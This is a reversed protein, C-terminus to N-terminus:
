STKFGLVLYANKLDEPLLSKFNAADAKKIKVQWDGLLQAQQAFDSKAMHQRGGYTPNPSTAEISATGGPPTLEVSFSVGATGDVILDVKTLNINTKGRVYFPLHDRELTFLLKQDQGDEPYLFRHWEGSFEQNLVFMRLGLPPLVAALNNKAAQTLNNGESPRATYRVHLIVDSVTALDFQNNERPLEVRWESVAGAGEFPLFREDNFNLEFMGSDNQGNSTAIAVQPVVSRFFRDDGGALPNGYGATVGQRVRIGHNTLSLTCNISTYPGVVCPISISVSKLRRFYHGPYDMDFLWEPLVVACAGAEKLAMLSLPFFQALSIHKTIELDRNNQELYVTEMRRIDNALREGALLGKKLSDWYGFQVFTATADGREHQFCKEARKAMDYALQYSQFYISAVQRVQWDYLQQNTYKSRMYEDTAQSHEIQLEQNELEKEAMALRIQAAAIQKEIQATETTALQGQFDWEDKRRQYGAMTGVLSSGQSLISGVHQLASNASQIFKAINETGWQVTVEPSGGFGSIGINFSPALFFAAALLENITLVGSVVISGGALAASVIELANMFERNEYFEKKQQALEQSKELSAWTENAEKIQQKKVERVAQQLAIEQSSRLLSLGEADYKELAALLKDGLARVEGCFELAKQSLQRFRYPAPAVALDAIVSSLDVGAAAAKVLLAPDIPPEFLPLQRVVGQINMCHRIKFLRDEVTDWYELLRDNNPIGFYFVNLTPLPETGSQTRTVHVLTGTFNEMLVDVQKNGFPDLGGATALENYSKDAHEVNPVKVPRRGLLEYALVYLTTAENIAEITDRRFLQDGWAILNDIYKMVVTKQYAVPRYRAILHPKFPNNKWARLEDEHQEINKLLNDIRQQRYADSNQEFFPRTIWYRQPVQPSETNTPDFLYHFWRMAEEFRQNQSLKCAIMLPAHFFIEWNYLAYAGYREFDVRDNKATKDPLSMSGPSYSNFDFANGPYYTQPATQIRRNLLGDLGSRNLERMFLATYPHYFPFFNYHYTPLTQNYGIIVQQWEPKIFFARANDQYFFPVPGWAATDFVISHQSAVIEFPSQAGRLLTRTHSNELVNAGSSNLTRKNNVLRTDYYHMGDPLPLRPAIEYRGSLPHISRGSEGFNDHVYTLSTTQTLFENAVGDGNLVHYQGVLAKMKVDVVEGDFVFSSSHWPRAIEDFPHRATVYDRTSRYADWFPTSNFERSQSIYVDLWLLNERSKYRPKLNYSYLPRQWPHILKQHSVKKTTWGDDKRASWCLQLELQNPPEPSNIPQDSAKAPPLKKVKQPKELFSLWFLYLRRNYVVPIVQDSQIDLDIKEWASWEGYNLDFRRYYYVAPQARTRGVVHLQNIDPPLHDRPDTDDLEYYAGVIDLRAVEHVKQVYHLFAAEANEDTMDSQLIENELEKFFPSKDDRLEPEIWNEPYLFVKRNAEWIRYSKMWQWQKWSNESANDQLETRSVEIRPQELGLLCRQVFMQTSSIAQKIRSTLQCASMEVDILFYKLLDNADRWYAPNAYRKGGQHIEPSVTVLSNSVLYGILADRKKERLADELPTVKELWVVDDYKSKAAQRAEQATLRHANNANDDRKAWASVKAATVGIRRSIRRCKDMRLYNEMDAFDSTAGGHQLSLAATLENVEQAEWQTLQAIAAKIDAVLTTQVGAKDFVGRLSMGEPEPYLEKFHMWKALKLWASFLPAAPADRLPLANLQLLGFKAANALMWNLNLADPKFRQVVLATKHLARFVNYIDPFNAPTVDTVFKGAGDQKVLEPDQLVQSFTKAGLKTQELLSQAQDAALAFITAVQSVIVGAPNSGPNARLGERLAKVHQTVVDDRLGVASDPNLQLLYDLEDATFSSKSVWDIGEIFDLVSKPAAFINAIGSLAELTLLDKVRMGLGQALAAYRGIKSLNALSLDNNALKAQLWTLDAETLAFAAFVTSKHDSLQAGGAIPLNFAPDVPNVIAQNLFLNEYLSPISQQPRDPKKRAETNIDTFLILTREVSLGLRKQLQAFQKLRVLCNEDLADKGIAPSRLLLDIEWMAWGVHRRLRLFRHMKDLRDANLNVVKQLNTDCTAEPREIVVNHPDNLPNIWRVYLLELLEGYNLFSRRLFDAVSLETPITPSTMGWYMMQKAPTNDGTAVVIATEHTSMGWYEGAISTDSPLPQGGQPRAQFAEMLEWRSVGLHQLFVRTQEQWLDFAIPLPFDATRLKDYAEERVHEPAARLEAATRTTQFAFNPAPNPAAMANELVECVLDIYPLPIETNECNLKINGIDPRREFLVDKVTKNTIESPHEDLFRLVDALYAAPGYVSQCHACACFDLSGFLTELNPIAALEPPLEAKTYTYSIMAKPDARHLDFRYDAIRQLVQAYQYEALGYVTMAVRPDVLKDKMLTAFFRDKGMAVIQSSSHIKNDLLAQGALANPAIRHVRQIVRAETLTAEDMNIAQQKVFVDLNGTRLDFDPHADMLTEVGKVHPLPNNPSRAVTAVLAVAPFMQESQSVLTAAYKQVKDVATQGDINAPVQGGHAHILEVWEDRTLKALDRASKFTQDNIKQKLAALMPGFNKTVQGVEVTTKLDQIANAGGFDAPRASVDAWFEPGFNKHKLFADAVSVYHAPDVTSSALLGKLSGNGVLIPKELAYTQKLQALASLVADKQLGVAIPMLNLTIANDFALAKLDDDMFVLGNTALDVLPDILEWEETSDILDGPLTSPLNQAIYAYCAEAGLPPHNLRTAVRHALVLRMVDEPLLEAAQAAQSIQHNAATEVLDAVHGTGMAKSVATMRTQFESTGRYPQEGKTFNTWAIQTPNFLLKSGIENNTADVAKIRLHFPQKIQKNAVERPPDYPIDFFGNSGTRREALQAGEGSVRKEWIQVTVGAMGQWLEDRVSGRVHYPFEGTAVDPNVRRIEQNLSELTDDAVHGTVALGHAQQYSVVADRTSKGFIKNKFESENVKYGLFALAGQVDGVHEGTMNLRAIKKLPRLEAASRAKLQRAPEPISAAISILRDYTVADLEGTVPLGYKTQVAKIAAQASPGIRRSKLEDADVRVDKLKAINLARLLMFQVQAVQTKSSLKTKLADERLKSVVEETIRGDRPVGLKAQFQKFAEETSAGFKRSKIEEPDLKYGAQQLLEQLRETRTKSQAVFRHALEANLKAVTDPTLKGDAPLGVQAQFSRVAEITSAGMEKRALDSPKIELKLKLLASQLEGVPKGASPLNASDALKLQSPFIIKNM